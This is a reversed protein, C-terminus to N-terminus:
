DNFSEENMQKTILRAAKEVSLSEDNDDGDHGGVGKGNDDDGSRLHSPLIDVKNQGSAGDHDNKFFYWSPCCPPLTNGLVDSRPRMVDTIYLTLQHKLAFEVVAQSVGEHAKTFDHGSFIGGNRLKPWYQNLKNLVNSYSHDEEDFYIFNLSNDRLHKPISDLSTTPFLKAIGSKFYPSLVQQIKNYRTDSAYSVVEHDDLTPSSIFQDIIFYKPCNKWRKLLQLSFDGHEAGITAGGYSEFGGSSNDGNQSEEKDSGLLKQLLEGLRDRDFLGMEVKVHNQQLTNFKEGNTTTMENTDYFKREAKAILPYIDNPMNPDIIGHFNNSTGEEEGEVELDDYLKENSSSSEVKPHHWDGGGGSLDDDFEIEAEESGEEEEGEIYTLAKRAVEAIIQSDFLSNGNIDTRRSKVTFRNMGFGNAM